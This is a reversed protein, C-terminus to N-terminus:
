MLWWNVGRCIDMCEQVVQLRRELEDGVSCEVVLLDEHGDERAVHHLMCKGLIQVDIGAVVHLEIKWVGLWQMM